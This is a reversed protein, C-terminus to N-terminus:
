SVIDFHTYFGSPLFGIAEGLLAKTAFRIPRDILVAGIEDLPSLLSVLAKLPGAMLFHSLHPGILFGLLVKTAIDVFQIVAMRVEGPAVPEGRAVKSAVILMHKSAQIEHVIARKIGKRIQVRYSPSVVLKWAALFPASLM